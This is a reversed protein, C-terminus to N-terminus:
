GDSGGGGMADLWGRKDDAMRIVSVMMNLEKKRLKGPSRGRAVGDGQIYARTVEEATARMSTTDPTHDGHSYLRGPKVEFRGTLYAVYSNLARKTLTASTYRVGLEDCIERVCEDRTLGYNKWVLGGDDGVGETESMM